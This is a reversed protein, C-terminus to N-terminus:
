TSPSPPSNTPPPSEFPPQYAKVVARTLSGVWVRMILVLLALYVASLAPGGGDVTYLWLQQYNAEM